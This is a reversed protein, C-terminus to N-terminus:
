FLSSSGPVFIRTLSIFWRSSSKRCRRERLTLGIADASALLQDSRRRPHRLGNRQKNRAAELVFQLGFTSKGIGVSGSVITSSRQLLGKGILADLGAVGSGIRKAAKLAPPIEPQGTDGYRPFVAVGGSHIVMNHQGSLHATNRLKYVELYRRREAGEQTASLLIVGDVVTEEVGFRSLQKTGYPIDACFFGVAHANQVITCLHFIKERNLQPDLVKHLFVSVSDIVVRKAQMADIREQIMLLHSEVMIDPQPIFVIEIMGRKLERDFDWGLGRAEARLRVDTEEFSFIIGKEGAKAGQYIFELSLVTKGTGAVGSILFSSGWPVGSGIEDLKEIHTKCRAEPAPATAQRQILVRPAYVEIGDQSLVFAHEDRSHATGRLKVIQFFRQQEGASQRQSLAIMGDVISFLPNSEYDHRSYEGILLVTTEWAMMNVTVEYVFRRIEEKSKAMDDFVKFSDIVVLAPKVKKLHQMILALGEQCGKSVLTSGIDVFHISQQYKKADFFTFQSLHRLIKASPESLTSFWLVRNRPSANHFCIQQCLTTKGSGPAGGVLTVSGRPLGGDSIADLNRVGTEIRRTKKQKTM